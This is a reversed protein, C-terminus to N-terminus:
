STTSVAELRVRILKNPAEMVTLRSRILGKLGPPIALLHDAVVVHKRRALTQIRHRLGPALAWVRNLLVLKASSGEIAPWLEEILGKTQSSDQPGRLYLVSPVPVFLVPRHVDLGTVDRVSLFRVASNGIATIVFTRLDENPGVVFTLGNTQPILSKLASVAQQDHALRPHDLRPCDRCLERLVNLRHLEPLREMVCLFYKMPKPLEGHYWDHITSRPVGILQGFERLELKHGTPREVGDIAKKLLRIVENAAKPYAPPPLLGSHSAFVPRIRTKKMGDHKAAIM